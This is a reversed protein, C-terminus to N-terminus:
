SILKGRERIMINLQVLSTRWSIRPLIVEQDLLTTSGTIRRLGTIKLTVYGLDDAHTVSSHVIPNQQGRLPSAKNRQCAVTNKPTTTTSSPKFSSLWADFGSYTTIINSESAYNESAYDMIHGKKNSTSDPSKSFTESTASALSIHPISAPLTQM